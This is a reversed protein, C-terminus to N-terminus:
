ASPSLRDHHRHRSRMTQTSALARRPAAVNRLASGERALARAADYREGSSMLRWAIRTTKNALAVAALKRPKRRLLATLWPAPETRGRTVQQIYATAGSVLLARLGEDGARTIGGHRMRGATSHDKPTLGIWAACGRGSRFAAPNNIKIVMSCATVTGITPIEVLRRCLENSREFARLKKDLQAIRPGLEAFEEGLGVFLEKALAPVTPDAAIRQLLPEIHKFGKAVVLGFEAAHGRLTNSLQTRRHLLGDRRGLLMQAALQEASKVPVLRKRVRPRSMAECIAAADNRDNKNRGIYPKVHQPPLLLVEHGLAQLQGAWHHSAGCAELGIETAELKSVFALFQGRRVRKCLVAEEQGDVGHLQFVSKSTDIGLRAITAM